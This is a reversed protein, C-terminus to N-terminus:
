LANPFNDEEETLSNATSVVKHEEVQMSKPRIM